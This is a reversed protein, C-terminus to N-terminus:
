HTLELYDIDIFEVMLGRPARRGGDKFCSERLGKPPRAGSGPAPAGVVQARAPASRLRTRQTIRHTRGGHSHAGPLSPPMAQRSNTASPM